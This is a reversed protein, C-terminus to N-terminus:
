PSGTPATHLTQKKTATENQMKNQRGQETERLSRLVHSAVHSLTLCFRSLSVVQGQHLVLSTSCSQCPVCLTPSGAQPLPSRRRGHKRSSSDVDPLSAESQVIYQIPVCSSRPQFLRSKPLRVLSQVSSQSMWLASKCCVPEKSLCLHLGAGFEHKMTFCWKLSSSAVVVRCFLRATPPQTAQKVWVLHNKWTPLTVVLLM